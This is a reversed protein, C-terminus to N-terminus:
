AEGTACYVTKTGIESIHCVFCDEYFETDSEIESQAEAKTDFLAIDDDYKVPQWGECMTEFCLTYKDNM